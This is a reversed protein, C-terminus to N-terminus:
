FTRYTVCYHKRAPFRGEPGSKARVTGLFARSDARRGIKPRGSFGNRYKGPILGALMQGLFGIEQGSGNNRLVVTMANNWM